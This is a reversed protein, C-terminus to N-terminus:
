HGSEGRETADRRGSEYRTLASKIDIAAESSAISRDDDVVSFNAGPVRVRLATTAARPERDVPPRTHAPAASDDGNAANPRTTSRAAPRSKGLPGRGRLPAFVGHLFDEAAHRESDSMSVVHDAPPREREARPREITPETAFIEDRAPSGPGQTATGAPTPEGDTGFASVPGPTSPDPRTVLTLPVIVRATTGPVGPVLRVFFHHRAAIRAITMIGLTSAAETEPTPTPSELIRNLAARLPESIGVGQDSISIVYDGTDFVGNITVKQEPGSFAVANEVLESVVQTLGAVVEPAIGAPELSVVDVQGTETAAVAIEVLESIDM